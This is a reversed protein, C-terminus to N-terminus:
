RNSVQEGDLLSIPPVRNIIEKKYADRLIVRLFPYSVFQM